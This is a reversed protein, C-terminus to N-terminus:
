INHLINEAFSKIRGATMGDSDPVLEDDTYKTLLRIVTEYHKRAIQTKGQKELLEGLMLHSLTHEHNLYIAKKLLNESESVENQENLFSAYIYYMEATAAHSAIIKQIIKDGEKLKGSNAFSKVLLTFWEITLREEEILRICRDICRHYEGKQFYISPHIESKPSTTTSKPPTTTTSKASPTKKSTIIATEKKVEHRPPVPLPKVKIPHQKTAVKPADLKRYFIGSNYNVREFNGFYEDNLEVQSTIFWGNEVLAQRFRGSVQHIVQPTFYMMVNRCFIVDMKVTNTLSSPYANKSLNLYAFTVMKKIEPSIHWTKNTSPTFYREKILPDTERFSWDTYEGQLAKQIATPSIDTALLTVDWGSLEPFHNKLLIALTYPEEGSSCGACWIRITKYTNRRQEILQPIIQQQFLELAPKERFFYTENITLHASLTNTEAHDFHTKSLWQHVNTLSDDKGLEKAAAKVRRELDVFQNSQFHLGLLQIVKQSIDTLLEERMM